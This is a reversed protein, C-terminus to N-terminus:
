FSCSTSYSGCINQSQPIVTSIRWSGYKKKQIDDDNQAGYSIGANSYLYKNWDNPKYIYINKEGSIVDKVLQLETQTICTSGICLKKDGPLTLNSQVTTGGSFENGYNITLINNDNKVLARCEGCNGKDSTKGIVLDNGTLNIKDFTQHNSWKNSSLLDNISKTYVSAEFTVGEYVYLYNYLIFLLFIIFVIYIGNMIYLLKM